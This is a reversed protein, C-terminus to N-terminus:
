DYAWDYEFHHSIHKCSEASAVTNDKRVLAQELVICVM